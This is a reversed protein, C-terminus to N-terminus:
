KRVSAQGTKSWARAFDFALQPSTGAIKKRHATLLVVTVGVEFAAAGDATRVAVWRRSGYPRGVRISRRDRETSVDIKPPPLDELQTRLWSVAANLEPHTNLYADIDDIVDYGIDADDLEEATLSREDPDSGSYLNSEVELLVHRCGNENPELLLAKTPLIYHPQQAAIGNTMSTM